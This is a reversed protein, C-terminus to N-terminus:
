TQINGLLDFLDTLLRNVQSKTWRYGRQYSPVVFCLRKNSIGYILDNVTVSHLSANQNEEM